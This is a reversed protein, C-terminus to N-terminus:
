WRHAKANSRLIINKVTMETQGNVQSKQRKTRTWNHHFLKRTRDIENYFGMCDGRAPIQYEDRIDLITEALYLSIHFPFGHTIEM